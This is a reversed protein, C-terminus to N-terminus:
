GCRCWTRSIFQGRTLREKKKVTGDGFFKCVGYVWVISAVIGGLSLGLLPRRGWRDSLVGYPVAGVIGPVCDFTAQWGRLVALYGQVDPSKCVPDDTLVLGGGAFRRQAPAPPSFVDPHLQRCIISEMIANMPPLSVGISLELLFILVLSLLIVRPRLLARLHTKAAAAAASDASTTYSSSAPSSPPLSPSPSRTSRPATPTPTGALLPASEEEAEEGAAASPTTDIRNISPRAMM